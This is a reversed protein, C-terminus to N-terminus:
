KRSGGACDSMGLAELLRERLLTEFDTGSRKALADSVVMMAFNSYEWQSGPARTLQTAALADILDHETLRAYPNNMNTARWPFSPLGSTHTVINAVIVENGNFSPAVTGPPLLKAISDDLAIEGRGIFEALLAATM